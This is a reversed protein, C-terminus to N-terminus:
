GLDRKLVKGTPNRPLADVFEVDRPVKYRALRDRVLTRVSDADLEAGPRCVVFAKLRTGWEADAVGVVAAESVDPHSAIVHEVEGPFVNEGGSVIMEDDRGDVHLLGHEDFHGTDGTGMLGDVIPKTDGTTYGDFLLDSRAFIRGVEGAPVPDGHADLIRVETGRPPRGSSSPALRLDAPTAISVYGVETSGYLNYLVDGYADLVRTALDGPLASGSVAVVRLSSTDYRRRQEVPLDLMRLVMIPVAALVEARSRAIAELTAAPDFRRRLVVTCGLLLGVLANAFGWSHFMPAAVVMTEGARYPIRDLLAVASAASTTQPRSAGKPPGSTGSTLIITRTEERAGDRRATSAAASGPVAALSDLSPVAGAETDDGPWALVRPEPGTLLPAFEDDHIVAVARERAMVEAVQPASFGTNLYLAHAGCKALAGGAEVIYRHNRCLVGVVDGAGIGMAALATAQHDTRADLQAFSVTGREDRVAVRDGFRAGALAFGAALGTGWRRWGTAMRVARDPRVPALAGTRALVRVAHLTDLPSPM